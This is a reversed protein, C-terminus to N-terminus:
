EDILGGRGEVAAAAVLYDFKEGVLSVPQVHGDDHDGVIAVHQFVTVSHQLDHVSADSAACRRATLLLGALRMALLGPIPVVLVLVGPIRGLTLGHHTAFPQLDPPFSPIVHCRPGSPWMQTSSSWTRSKM